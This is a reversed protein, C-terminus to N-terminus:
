MFTQPVTKKKPLFVSVQFSTTTASNTVFLEICPNGTVVRFQLIMLLQQM